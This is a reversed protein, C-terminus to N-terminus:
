GSILETWSFHEAETLVYALKAGIVGGIIALFIVTEAYVAPINRRRLERGLLWLGTLFGLAM